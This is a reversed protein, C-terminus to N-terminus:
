MIMTSEIIWFSNWETDKCYALWWVWPINVKDQYITGWNDTVLKIYKDINPVDITCVFASPSWSEMKEVRKVLGGNIGPVYKPWSNIMWYDMTVM